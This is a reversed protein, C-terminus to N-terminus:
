NNTHKFAFGFCVHDIILVISSWDDITTTASLVSAKQPNLAPLVCPAMVFLASTSQNMIWLEPNDPNNKLRATANITEKYWKCLRQSHLVESSDAAQFTQSSCPSSGIRSKKQLAVTIAQREALNPINAISHRWRCFRARASADKWKPLELFKTLSLASDNKAVVRWACSSSCCFCSLCARPCDVSTYSYSRTDTYTIVTCSFYYYHGVQLFKYSTTQLSSQCIKLTLGLWTWSSHSTITVM